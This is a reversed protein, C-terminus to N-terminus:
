ELTRGTFALWGQNFFFCESDTGSMWLMVPACDAMIRFRADREELERQAERRETVDRVFMMGGLVNGEASRLPACVADFFRERAGRGARYPRNTLTVRRGELAARLADVGGEDGLFPFAELMTRGLARAVPIGVLDEMLSNWFTVELSSDFVAIGDPSSHLLQTALNGLDADPRPPISALLSQVPM